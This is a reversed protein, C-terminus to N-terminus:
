RWSTLKDLTIPLHNFFSVRANLTYVSRTVARHQAAASVRRPGEPLGGVLEPNAFRRFTLRRGPTVTDHSPDPGIM